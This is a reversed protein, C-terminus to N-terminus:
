KPAPAPAPAPTGAAPTAPAPTTERYKADIRAIVENSLDISPNVFMLNRGVLLQQLQQLSLNDLNPPLEPSFQAIVLDFGKEKAVEETTKVILDYIRRTTDKQRRQINVQTTKAWTEAAAQTDLLERNKEDYQPSDSKLEDRAKTLAVIKERRVNAEQQFAAVEADMKAGVDKSEQIESFVRTPNVVAIKSQAMAPVALGLLLAAAALPTRLTM